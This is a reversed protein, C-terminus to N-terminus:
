KERSILEKKIDEIKIGSNVMLVLTHYVLDSIEYTIEEKSENKAAIIVEASEEGVKKLIKDLGKDFLYNTYSGDVPNVKRDELLSYLKELVDKTDINEKEMIPNFFCSYNGTHCAVGTQKVLVLISDADCDYYLGKVEQINGSTLGKTWLEQRSRSYYCAKKEELTKRISEENMYALMLVEKTDIDQAIAPILGKDDFKLNKIADIDIKGELIKETVLNDRM